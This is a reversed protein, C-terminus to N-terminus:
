LSICMYMYLIYVCIGRGGQRGVCMRLGMYKGGCVCEYM